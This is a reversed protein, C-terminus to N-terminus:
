CCGVNGVVCDKYTPMIMVDCYVDVIYIFTNRSSNIEVTPHGMRASLHENEQLM